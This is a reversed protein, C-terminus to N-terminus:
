TNKKENWYVSNKDEFECVNGFKKLCRRAQFWEKCLQDVECYIKPGGLNFQEASPNLKACWCGHNLLKSIENPAFQTFLDFAADNLHYNISVESSQTIKSFVTLLIFNSARM